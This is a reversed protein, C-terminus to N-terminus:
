EDESRTLQLDKSLPMLSVSLASFLAAAPIAVYPGGVNTGAAVIDQFKMMNNCIRGIKETSKSKELQQAKRQILGLLQQYGDESRLKMNPKGLQKKLMTNLKHLRERGKEEDNLAQYAQKWLNPTHKGFNSSTSIASGPM